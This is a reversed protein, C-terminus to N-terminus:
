PETGFTRMYHVLAWREDVSLSAALPPMSFGGERLISYLWGDAYNQIYPASLDPMRRYYEALRGDGVANPGHCLTCYIRYLEAGEALVEPSAPLPNTLREGAEIRDFIQPGAVPVTGDPPALVPRTQPLVVPGEYMNRMLTLRYASIATGALVVTLITGILRRM